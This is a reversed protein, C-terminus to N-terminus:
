RPCLDVKTGPQKVDVAINSQNRSNPGPSPAPDGTHREPNRVWAQRKSNWYAQSLWILHRNGGVFLELTLDIGDRGYLSRLKRTFKTRLIFRGKSDTASVGVPAAYGSPDNSPFAGLLIEAGRVPKGTGTDTMTGHLIVPTHLKRGDKFKKYAPFVNFALEASTCRPAALAIPAAAMEVTGGSSGCGALLGLTTLAAAGRGKIGGGM